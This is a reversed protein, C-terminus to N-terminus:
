QSPGEGRALLLFFKMVREAHLLAVHAVLDRKVVMIWSIVSLLGHESVVQLTSSFGSATSIVVQDAPTPLSTVIRVMSRLKAPLLFAAMLLSIEILM